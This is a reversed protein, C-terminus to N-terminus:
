NKDSKYCGCEEYTLSEICYEDNIISLCDDCKECTVSEIRNNKDMHFLCDACYKRKKCKSIIWTIMNYILCGICFMIFVDILNEM